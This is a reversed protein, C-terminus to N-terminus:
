DKEGGRSIYYLRTGDAQIVIRLRDLWSLTDVEGNLLGTKPIQKDSTFIFDKAKAETINGSLTKYLMRHNPTVIADIVSSNFRVM